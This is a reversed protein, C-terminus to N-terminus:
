PKLDLKIRIGHRREKGKQSTTPARAESATWSLTTSMQAFMLCPSLLDAKANLKNKVWTPTSKITQGYKTLIARKLGRRSRL